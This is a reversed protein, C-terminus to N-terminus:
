IHTLSLAYLIAALASLTIAVARIRGKHRRAAEQAEMHPTVQVTTAQDM